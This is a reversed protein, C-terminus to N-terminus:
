KRHLGTTSSARAKSAAQPAPPRSTYERQFFQQLRTKSADLDILLKPEKAFDEKLGEHMIRPDFQLGRIIRDENSRSDWPKKPGKLWKCPRGLLTPPARLMESAVTSNRFAVVTM